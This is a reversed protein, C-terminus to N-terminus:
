EWPAKSHTKMYERLNFLLELDNITIVARYPANHKVIISPEGDKAASFIASAKGQSVDSMPYIRHLISSDSM